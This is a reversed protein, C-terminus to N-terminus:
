ILSIMQPESTRLKQGCKRLNGMGNKIGNGQDLM